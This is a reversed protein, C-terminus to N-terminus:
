VEIASITVGSISANGSSVALLSADLWYATSTTLGTIIGHICFGSTEGASKVVATQAIGIVTGSVAAGNSPKTGTGYRFDVTAGSLSASDNAM